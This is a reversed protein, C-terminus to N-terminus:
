QGKGDRKPLPLKRQGPQKANCVEQAAKRKNEYLAHEQLRFDDLQAINQRIEVLRASILAQMSHLKSTIDDFQKEAESLRAESDQISAILADIETNIQATRPSKELNAKRRQLEERDQKADDILNGVRKQDNELGVLSKKQSEVRRAEAENWSSYYYNEANLYVELLESTRNLLGDVRTAYCRNTKALRDVEALNEEEAKEYARRADDAAAKAAGFRDGEEAAPQTEATTPTQPPPPTQAHASLGILMVLGAAYVIPANM